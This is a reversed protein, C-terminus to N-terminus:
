DGESRRDSQATSDFALTNAGSHSLREFLSTPVELAQATTKCDAVFNLWM